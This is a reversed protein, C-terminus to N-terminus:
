RVSFCLSVQIGCCVKGIDSQFRGIVATQCVQAALKIFVQALDFPSESHFDIIAAIDEPDNTFL